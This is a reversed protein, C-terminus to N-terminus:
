HLVDFVSHQFHSSLGKKIACPWTSRLAELTLTIHFNLEFYINLIIIYMYIYLCDLMSLM